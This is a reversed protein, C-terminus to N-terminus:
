LADFFFDAVYAPFSMEVIENAIEAVSNAIGVNSVGAAFRVKM